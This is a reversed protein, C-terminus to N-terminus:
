VLTLFILARTVDRALFFGVNRGLARNMVLFAFSMAATLTWLAPRGPLFYPMILANCSFLLIAHHWHMLLPICLILLVIGMVAISGLEFPEALLYGCCPHREEHKVKVVGEPTRGSYANPTPIWM